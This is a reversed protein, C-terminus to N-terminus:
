GLDAPGICVRPDQYPTRKIGRTIMLRIHVGDHMANRELTAYIAQTLEARSMGIDLMIAKAGEYLRDLHQDLFAPHGGVVRLGEWVGDGLVFGSDFVSVMAEARPKYVGNLYILVSENREDVVYDHTGHAM